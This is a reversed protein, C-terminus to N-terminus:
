QEEWSLLHSVKGIAGRTAANDPLIVSRGRKKLGLAKVTEKQDKTGGIVSRSLTIKIKDAM